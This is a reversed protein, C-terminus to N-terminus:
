TPNRSDAIRNYIWAVAWGVVGGSLAGYLFGIVSGTWTVSYGLFYNNLLSLHQGVSEGGQILLWATAVFLGTGGVLGFVVAMVSARLRAVATRLLERELDPPAGASM